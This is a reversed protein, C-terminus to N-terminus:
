STLVHVFEDPRELHAAHGADDIVTLRARPGIAHAMRRAIAVYKHDLSGAVVTVPLELEVLRDWLPEQAGQGLRRLAHTLTAVSHGRRREALGAAAVPLSAFMPQTIWRQLFADAGDREVSSALREDADRRAAREAPDDIGPTASMLVLRRVLDPREIALRLCLRGGMSYGVYDGPGGAEGLAAATEAFGLASPVDLAVFETGPALRDLVPAWSRATQTFGPVFILTV